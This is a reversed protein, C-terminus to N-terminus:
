SRRSWAQVAASHPAAPARGAVIRAAFLRQGGASAILVWGGDHEFAFVPVDRAKGSQRLERRYRAEGHGIRGTRGM